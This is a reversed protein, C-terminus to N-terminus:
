VCLEMALAPRSWENEQDRLIEEFAGFSIYQLESRLADEHGHGPFCGSLDVRVASLCTLPSLLFVFM